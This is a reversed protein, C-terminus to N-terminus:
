EDDEDVEDEVEDEDEDIAEDWSASWWAYTTRTAVGHQWRWKPKPEGPREGTEERMEHYARGTAWAKAKALSPQAWANESPDADIVSLNVHYCGRAVRIIHIMWHRVDPAEDVEDLRFM